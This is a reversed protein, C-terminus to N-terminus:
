PRRACEPGGPPLPLVDDYPPDFCTIRDFRSKCIGAPSAACALSSGITLCQYGCAIHSLSSVCSAPELDDEQLMRWRVPAPPDWCALNQFATRCAGEPTAACAVRHLTSVCHFGCAV